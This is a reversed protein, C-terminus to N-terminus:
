ENKYNELFFKCILYLATGRLNPNDGKERRTTPIMKLLAKEVIETQNRTLQFQFHQLKASQAREWNQLYEAINAQGLSTLAELSVKTEPLIDLIEQEPISELVQRLIEARLGMDDIGHICNLAQSLLRANANDLEVVVCPVITYKAELLIKLRQNGSIVEYTSSDLPRVVLNEVIGYRNISERLHLLMADNMENTNWPAERLRNIEIEVVKMM